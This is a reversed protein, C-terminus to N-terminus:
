SKRLGSVAEGHISEHMPEPPTSQCLCCCRPRSFSRVSCMWMHDGSVRKNCAPNLSTCVSSTESKARPGDAYLLAQTSRAAGAYVHRQSSLLSKSAAISMMSSCLPAHRTASHQKTVEPRLWDDDHLADEIRPFRRWQIVHTRDKCCAYDGAHECQRTRKPYSM